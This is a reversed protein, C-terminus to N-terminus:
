ILRCKVWNEMAPKTSKAQGVRALSTVVWKQCAAGYRNLLHQLQLRNSACQQV